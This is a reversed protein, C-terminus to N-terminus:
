ETFPQTEAMRNGGRRRICGRRRGENQLIQLEVPWDSLALVLGKVDLNGTQLEAEIAASERRCREM